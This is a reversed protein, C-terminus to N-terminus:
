FLKFNFKLFRSKQLTHILYRQTHLIGKPKGTTGSSWFIVSTEDYSKSACGEFSTDSVCGRELFNEWRIVNDFKTLDDSECEGNPIVVITKNTKAGFKKVTEQFCFIIKGGTEDLQQLLIEEPLGTM